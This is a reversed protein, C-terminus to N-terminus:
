GSLHLSRGASVEAVMIFLKTGFGDSRQFILAAILKSM